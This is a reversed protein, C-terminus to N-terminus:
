NLLKRLSLSLSRVTGNYFWQVSKVYHHAPPYDAVNAVIDDLRIYLLQVLEATAKPLALKVLECRGVDEPEDTELPSGEGNEEDQEEFLLLEEEDDDSNDGHNGGNSQIEPASKSHVVSFTNQSLFIFLSFVTPKM